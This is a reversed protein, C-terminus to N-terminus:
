LDRSRMSLFAGALFVASYALASRLAQGAEALVSEGRRSGYRKTLDLTEIVSM